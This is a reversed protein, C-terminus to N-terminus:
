PADSYTCRFGVATPHIDYSRVSSVAINQGSAWNGGRTTSDQATDDTCVPDLPIGVAAWCPDAFSRASDRTWETMSGALDLVGDRSADGLGGCSPNPLHSGAPEVGVGCFPAGTWRLISAMCCTAPSAGWPFPRGQGRGRAAHEWQAESPLSGGSLECLEQATAHEVCNLPLADNVASTTGLWTCNSEEAASLPMPGDIADAMARFRGVTVEVEDIHFPSVRAPRRPLAPLFGTLTLTSAFRDGLLSYGGAICIRGPKPAAQCGQELSAEWTGVRSVLAETPDIPEIGDDPSGDFADKAVCTRLDAGFQPREGTCWADLLIRVHAVGESPAEIRVVRDITAEPLPQTVTEGLETVSTGLGARFARFRILLSEGSAPVAGFSVPWDRADPALFEEVEFPVQESTLVDVRLTDIAADASLEPRTAVLGAVPANTDVVLVVQARAALDEGCATVLISLLALRSKLAVGM